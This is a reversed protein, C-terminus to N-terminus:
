RESPGEPEAGAPATGSLVRDTFPGLLHGAERATQRPTGAPTTVYSIALRVLTEALLRADKARVQPWGEVVVDAIRQGAWTVLPLGRTTVFPLMGGEGEDGLLARVLPDDAAAGLVEELAAVIAAQPDSFNARLAAEVGAFFREAEHLVLAQGFQERNGFENYLTQRSVGAVAAIEAMSIRSWPRDELEARAAAFTTERLLERTAEKFTTRAETATM